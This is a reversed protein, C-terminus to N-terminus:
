QVRVREYLTLQSTTSSQNETNKEANKKGLSRSIWVKGAM